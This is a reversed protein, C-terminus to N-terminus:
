RVRVVMTWTALRSTLLHVEASDAEDMTDFPGSYVRYWPQDDVVVEPISVEHGTAAMRDALRRARQYDRFSGVHVGLGQFTDPYPGDESGAAQPRPDSAPASEPESAPAPEPEPAPASDSVAPEPAPEPVREPEPTSAAEAAREHEGQSADEQGTTAAVPETSEGEVDDMEGAETPVSEEELAIEAQLSPEEEPEVATTGATAVEVPSEESREDQLGGSAPWWVVAAAMVLLLAALIWPWARRSERSETAVPPPPSPEASASVPSPETAPVAREPAAMAPEDEEEASFVLDGRDEVHKVLVDKSGDVYAALLARDAAINVLRPVGRCLAHVKRLADPRFIPRDAGAVRLRHEVYAQTEKEELPTLHYHVRIRQRVQLLDPQDIIRRLGPQGSLVVQIMQKDDHDLNTLLRLGELTDGDLNQAEDVILLCRRGEKALGKLVAKLAAILDARDAGQPPTVGLELLVLKLLERLDVTTVNILAVQFGSTERDVLNKLALTKGTGIAGTILLIDEGGDIGYILHAMTEEFATSHYVFRLHPSLSFPATYLGFHDLYM